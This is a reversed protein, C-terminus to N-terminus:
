IGVSGLRAGQRDLRVTLEAGDLTLSISFAGPGVASLSVAELRRGALASLAENVEAASEALEAGSPLRRYARLAAQEGGPGYLARVRGSQLALVLLRDLEAAQEGDVKADDELTAILGDLAERYTSGKPVADRVATVEALAVEREEGKLLVATSV